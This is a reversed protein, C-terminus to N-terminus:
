NEKAQNLKAREKLFFALTHLPPIKKGEMLKAFKASVEKLRSHDRVELYIEKFSDHLSVCDQIGEKQFMEKLQKNLAKKKDWIEEKQM